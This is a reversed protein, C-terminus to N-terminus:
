IKYPPVLYKHAKLTSSGEHGRKRRFNEPPKCIGPFNTPGQSIACVKLGFYNKGYKKSEMVKYGAM